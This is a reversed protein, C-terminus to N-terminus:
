LNKIPSFSKRHIPCPGFKALAERHKETGYGKHEKFGYEPFQIHYMLMLEDRMEKAIISSAAILQSRQDGKIVKEAAINEVSLVVNGDILLYDPRVPLAVVAKRMARLTAQLINVEDIEAADVIGVGFSIEPNHILEEYLAKRKKSPLLKSDNIGQFFLPSKFLCAAAVVPGALPGRGAEDVGAIRRFGKAEVQREIEVLQLLREEESKHLQSPQNVNLQKTNSV